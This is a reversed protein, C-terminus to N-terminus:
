RGAYYAALDAIDTDSLSWAIGRMTPHPRDGKRYAILAAELYKANQGAIMPVRYVKPFSAKYGPIGHCGICQSRKEAGAKPDGGAKSEVAAKADAAGKADEVPSGPKAETAVGPAAATGQSYAPASIWPAVLLFVFSFLPLLRVFAARVVAASAFGRLALVARESGLTKPHTLTPRHAGPLRTSEPM